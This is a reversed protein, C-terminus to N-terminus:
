SFIISVSRIRRKLEIWDIKFIKGRTSTNSVDRDMPLVSTSLHRTRQKEGMWFIRLVVKRQENWGNSCYVVLLFVIVISAMVIIFSRFLPNHSKTSTTPADNTRGVNASESAVWSLASQVFVVMSLSGGRQSITKRSLVTTWFLFLVLVIWFWSSSRSTTTSTTCAEKGRTQSSLETISTRIMSELVLLVLTWWSLLLLLLVISQRNWLSACTIGKGDNSCLFGRCEFWQLPSVVVVVRCAVKCYIREDDDDAAAADLAM